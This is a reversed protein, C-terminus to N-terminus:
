LLEKVLRTSSKPTIGQTSVKDRKAPCDSFLNYIHKFPRVAWRRM